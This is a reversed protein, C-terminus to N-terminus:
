FLYTLVCCGIGGGSAEAGPTLEQLNSGGQVSAKFAQLNALVALRETHGKRHLLSLPPLLCTASLNAGQWNLFKGLIFTCRRRLRSVTSFDEEVIAAKISALSWPPNLHHPHHFLRIRCLYATGAVRQTM